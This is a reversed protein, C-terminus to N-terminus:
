LKVINESTYHVIIGPTVGCTRVTFFIEKFEYKEPIRFLFLGYAIDDVELRSRTIVFNKPKYINGGSDILLTSYKEKFVSSKAWFPWYIKIEHSAENRITFWILIYKKNYGAKLGKLWPFVTSLWGIKQTDRWETFEIVHGKSFHISYLNSDRRVLLGLNDSFILNATSGSSNIQFNGRVVGVGFETLSNESILLHRLCEISTFRYRIPKASPDYFYVLDDGVRSFVEDENGLVDGCYYDRFIVNEETRHRTLTWSSQVILFYVVVLFLVLLLLIKPKSM